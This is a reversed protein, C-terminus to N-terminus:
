KNYWHVHTAWVPPESWIDDRHYCEFGYIGWCGMGDFPLFAEIRASMWEELTFQVGIDPSAEVLIIKYAKEVARAMQKVRRACERAGNPKYTKSSNFSARKTAAPSPKHM